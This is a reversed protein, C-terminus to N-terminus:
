SNSLARLAAAVKPDAAYHAAADRARGLDPAPAGLGLARDLSAAAAKIRSSGASAQKTARSQEDAMLKGGMAWLEAADEDSSPVIGLEALKSFYEPAIVELTLTAEADARSWEDWVGALGDAFEYRHSWGAARARSPDVIVAPMEGPQAPGHRVTLEAGTVRCVEEVVELVSLSTGSGIVVPGHWQEDTLTLRMAAVVDSVHVYDRVHRGDGYIEFTTGLRIARMLRAVISDKAQM